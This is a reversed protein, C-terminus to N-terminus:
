DTSKAKLKPQVELSPASLDDNGKTYGLTLTFKTGSPVAGVIANYYTLNGEGIFGNGLSPTTHMNTAGVPQQIQVTMSKVAYDGQWEYSFTRDTGNKELGPDYYELQIETSTATLTVLSWNGLVSISPAVEYLQGDAERVAVKYPNGAKSPIRLTLSVPLQTGPALNMRYIVLMTPRDYEPWLDVEVKDLSPTTQQARVGTPVLLMLTLLLFVVWKRM